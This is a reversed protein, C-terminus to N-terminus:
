LITDQSFFYWWGFDHHRCDFQRWLSVQHFEDVVQVVSFRSAPFVFFFIAFNLFVKKTMRLFIYRHIDRNETFISVGDVFEIRDPSEFKEDLRLIKWFPFHHRWVRASNQSRYGSDVEDTDAMLDRRGGLNAM